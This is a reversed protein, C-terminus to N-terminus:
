FVVKEFFLTLFTFPLFVCLLGALVEYVAMPTHEGHPDNLFAIALLLITAIDAVILVKLLCALEYMM